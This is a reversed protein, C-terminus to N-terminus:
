QWFVYLTTNCVNVCVLIALSAKSVLFGCPFIIIFFLIQLQFYYVLYFYISMYKIKHQHQETSSTHTTTKKPPSLSSSFGCICKGSFLNLKSGFQKVSISFNILLFLYLPHSPAPNWGGNGWSMYCKKVDIKYPVHTPKFICCIGEVVGKPLNM